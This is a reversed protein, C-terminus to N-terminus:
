KDCPIFLHPPTQPGLSTERVKLFISELKNRNRKKAYLSTAWDHGVRQSGMSQLGRPEETWMTLDRESSCKMASSTWLQRTVHGMTNWQRRHTDKGWIDSHYSFMLVNWSIKTGVKNYRYLDRNKVCNAKVFIQVYM